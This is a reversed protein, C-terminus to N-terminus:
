AMDDLRARAAKLRAEDAERAALNARTEAVVEPPASAAFNPNGLRGRLGGLEKALKALTKDLRAKEAAVDIVGALPLAYTAGSVAITAAGKPAAGEAIGDIRALRQLLALNGAEFRAADPSRETAVLPLVAGAPVNMEGRVSRIGEILSIVWAMEADAAEDNLDGPFEPWPTLALMADRTGLSGWLTETVFPMVPHLLILCRDIVWAVTAQTEAKLDADEGTLLPKSLELYWDCVTGWVFAYAGRAADDFRYAELAADHAAFARATEGVIWSNVACLGHVDSACDMRMAHADWAGNLEAFRAANWLKTGFNRYGEIRKTSLRLDRGMAAMSALTFRM